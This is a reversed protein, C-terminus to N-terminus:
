ASYTTARKDGHKQVRRADRLERLPAQLRDPAVGLRSSLARLGLPEGADRLASVIKDGIEARREATQREGRAGPAKASGRRTAPGRRGSTAAPRGHVALVSPTSLAAVEAFSANRIAVVLQSVFDQTLEAIRAELTSRPM